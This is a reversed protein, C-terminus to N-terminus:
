WGNIQMLKEEKKEEEPEPDKQVKKDETEKKEM